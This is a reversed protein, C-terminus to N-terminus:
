LNEYYVDVPTSTKCLTQERDRDLEEFILRMAYHRDKVIKIYRDHEPNREVKRGDIFKPTVYDYEYYMEVVTQSHTYDANSVIEDYVDQHKSHRVTNIWADNISDITWQKYM